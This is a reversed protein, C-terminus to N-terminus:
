ACELGKIIGDLQERIVQRKAVVQAIEANLRTIDLVETADKPDLYRSVSLNYNNQRIQEAEVM